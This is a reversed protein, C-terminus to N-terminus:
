LLRRKLVPCHDPIGKFIFHNRNIGNNRFLLLRFFFIISEHCEPVVEMIIEAPFASNIGKGIIKQTSTCGKLIDFIKLTIENHKRTKEVQLLRFFYRLKQILTGRVIVKRSEFLVFFCDLVKEGKSLKKLFGDLITPCHNDRTQLIFVTINIFSTM